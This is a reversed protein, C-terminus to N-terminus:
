SLISGNVNYGRIFESANVVKKGEMQLKLVEIFGDKCKVLMKDSFVVIQGNQCTKKAKHNSIKVKLIKLRKKNLFSFTGPWPDFARVMREIDIKKKSWNIHGDERKLIKTYTAESRDQVQPKIEGEVWQNLTETLLEISFESLKDHLEGATISPSLTVKKQKLIPGHDIKKDMLMITVGTKREGKLIQFQVPSPGRFKPLLSAHVNISRFKPIELIEEPIILGYAIVVILDPKLNRVIKLFKSNDELKQSQFVKINNELTIKKIPSFSLKQHRGVEKDPNTVVGVIKFNSSKILAKLPKLGFEGTGFFLIKKM